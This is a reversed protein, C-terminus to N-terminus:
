NEIRINAAKAVRRWQELDQVIFDRYASGILTGHEFGLERFRDAVAPDSMMESMAQMLRAVIPEPTRAPATLGYAVVATVDLGMERLTPVEPLVRSRAKSTVALARLQGGDVLPKVQVPTVLGIDVTGAVLANTAPGPGAFPVHVMQIGAAACLLAMTMHPASGVGASGYNLKGPNAKACAVVDALSKFADKPKVAVAYPQQAVSAIFAFDDPITYPVSAKVAPLVSLGDTVTWLLTYGDPPSKAVLDTGLQAAAGPKNEVYFQQGLRKSLEQAIIRGTLDTGAGAAFPIVVRVARSPYDQASVPQTGLAFGLMALTIMTRRAVSEEM